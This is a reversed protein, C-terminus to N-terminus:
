HAFVIEKIHAANEKIHQMLDNKVENTLFPFRKKTGWVSHIWIKVYSM